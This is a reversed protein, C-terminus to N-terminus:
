RSPNGGLLGKYGEDRMWHARALHSEVVRRARDPEQDPDIEFLRVAMARWDLGEAAADMLRIYLPAHDIDYDTVTGGTPAADDFREGAM